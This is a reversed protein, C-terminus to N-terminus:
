LFDYRLYAGYSDADGQSGTIGAEWVKAFRYGLSADVNYDTYGFDNWIDVFYATAGLTARMNPTLYVLGIGANTTDYDFGNTNINTYGVKVKGLLQGDGENHSYIPFYAGANVDLINANYGNGATGYAYGGGVFFNNHGVYEGSVGYAETTNDANVNVAVFSDTLKAASAPLATLALALALASMTKNLMQLDGKNLQAFARPASM